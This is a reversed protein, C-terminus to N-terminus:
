RRVTQGTRGSERAAELIEVVILNNALSSLAMHGPLREGEGRLVAAFFAFVDDVPAVPAPLTITNEPERKGLCSRLTLKNPALVYGDAGFIEMDKRSTPWNWSAQIVCQANPYTVVITADDDVNPYLQPKVQQTIASVALPRADNMLWTMLNAGYCGFDILAGGGNLAPDTLWCLFDVSCGLEKPGWHGDHVVVKWVEGIANQQRVMRHAEHTSPYWTTEYNTLLHIGHQQALAAMRQAHAVSVALPKEVIVHVGRPACAEVVSLHDFISGFAMVGQPQIQDLMQGLDTHVLDAQLGHQQVFRQAIAPDPEYVGVLRMDDRPPRNFYWQVHDHSLGAIAIQAPAQTSSMTTNHMIGLFMGAVVM